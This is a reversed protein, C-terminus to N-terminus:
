FFNSFSSFLTKTMTMFNSCPDIVKWWYAGNIHSPQMLVKGISISFNWHFSGQRWSLPSVLYRQKWKSLFIVRSSIKHKTRFCIKVRKVSKSFKWNINSSKHDPSAIELRHSRKSDLRKKDGLVKALLFSVPSSGAFYKCFGLVVLFGLCQFHVLFILFVSSIQRFCLM